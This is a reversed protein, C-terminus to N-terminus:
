TPVSTTVDLLLHNSFIHLSVTCGLILVNLCKTLINKDNLIHYDSLKSNLDIKLNLTKVKIVVNLM